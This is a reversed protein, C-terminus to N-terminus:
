IGHDTRESVAREAVCVFPRYVSSHCTKEGREGQPQIDGHDDSALRFNIRSSHQARYVISDRRRLQVPRRELNKMVSDYSRCVAAQRDFPDIRDRSGRLHKNDNVLSTADVTNNRPRLFAHHM